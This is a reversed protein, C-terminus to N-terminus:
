EETFQMLFAVDSVDHRENVTCCRQVVGALSVAGIASVFAVAIPIGDFTDKSFDFAM